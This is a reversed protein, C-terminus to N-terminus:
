FTRLPSSKRTSSETPSLVNVERANARGGSAGEAVAGRAAFFIWAGGGSGRRGRQPEAPFRMADSGAAQAKEEAKCGGALEGGGWRLVGDVPCGACLPSPAATAPEGAALIQRRQIQWRPGRWRRRWRRDVRSQSGDGGDGTREAPATRSGGM